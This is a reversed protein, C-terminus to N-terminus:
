RARWREAVAERGVRHAHARLARANALAHVGVFALMLGSTVSHWFVGARMLDRARLWENLYLVLFGTVFVVTTAAVLNVDVLARRPKRRLPSADRRDEAAGARAWAFAAIAGLLAITGTVVLAHNGRGTVEWTGRLGTWTALVVLLAWAGAVIPTRTVRALQGLRVRNRALHPVLALLFAWSWAAHWFTLWDTLALHRVPTRAFLLLLSTVAVMTGTVALVLSTVRRRALLKRALIALATLVLFTVTYDRLTVGWGPALATYLHADVIVLVVLLALLPVPRLLLM